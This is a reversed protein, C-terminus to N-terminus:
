LTDPKRLLWFQRQNEQDDGQHLPGSDNHELTRSFSIKKISHTNLENGFTNENKGFANEDSFVKQYIFGVQALPSFRPAYIRRDSKLLLVSTKITLKIGM